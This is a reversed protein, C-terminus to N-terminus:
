GKFIINHLASTESLGAQDFLQEVGPLEVRFVPVFLAYCWQM